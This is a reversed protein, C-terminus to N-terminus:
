GGYAASPVALADHIPQTLAAACFKSLQGDNNRRTDM